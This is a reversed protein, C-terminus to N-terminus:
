RDLLAARARPRSAYWRAWALNPVWSVWAIWPYAQEFGGLAFALLPTWLRFTVAAFILAFSHLMWYRHREVDRRRIAALGLATCALLAAAMGAFGLGAAAGTFAYLSMYLGSLGTGFAGLMYLWGLRRHLKPRRAFSCALFQWPGIALALPGSLAHSVIGWPRALFSARLPEPYLAEGAIVQALSYGSIALSLLAVLGWSLSRLTRQPAAM